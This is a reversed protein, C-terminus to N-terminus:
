EDLNIVKQTEIFDYFDQCTIHEKPKEYEYIFTSENNKIYSNSNIFKKKVDFLLSNLSSYEHIGKYEGWSHEFWYYKTSDHCVLFTHSPLNENDYVCIYYTKCDINEERCFERELEVQDWCIGCKNNLIEERTLLHYENYIVYDWEKSDNDIIKGNSTKIGYKIDSMKKMIQKLKNKMCEGM